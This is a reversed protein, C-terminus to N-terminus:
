GERESQQFNLGSSNGRQEREGRSGKGAGGKGIEDPKKEEKAVARRNM